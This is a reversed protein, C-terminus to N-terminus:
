RKASQEALFARIKVRAPEDKIRTFVKEGLRRLTEPRDFPLRDYMKGGPFHCPQCKAEFIPQIEAKYDIAKAPQAATVGANCGAFALFLAVLLPM